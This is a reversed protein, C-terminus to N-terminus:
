FAGEKINKLLEIIEDLKSNISILVADDSAASSDPVSADNSHNAQADRLVSTDLKPAATRRVRLNSARCNAQSGDVHDVDGSCSPDIFAKAVVVDLPRWKKTGGKEDSWAVYRRDVGIKTPRIKAKLARHGTHTRVIGCSAVDFRDEFGVVPRWESSLIESPDIGEESEIRMMDEVDLVVDDFPDM